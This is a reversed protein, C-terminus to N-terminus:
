SAAACRLLGAHPRATRRPSPTSARMSTSAHRTGARPMPARMSAHCPRSAEGESHMCVVRQEGAGHLCGVELYEVCIHGTGKDTWSGEVNLRYVKARFYTPGGNLGGTPSGGSM